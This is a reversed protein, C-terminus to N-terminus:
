PRVGSKRALALVSRRAYLRHEFDEYILKYEANLWDSFALERATNKLLILGPEAAKLEQVFRAGTLDGSWFRKLSIVGLQPPLPIGAHFSYIPEDTYLFETFPKLRQLEALALDSYLQPSQRMTKLELTVRAGMWVLTGLGIVALLVAWCRKGPGSFRQWLASIGVGACWGLPVANHVYYYSWWPKHTVFVALTLALWIVPVLLLPRCRAQRLLVFVGVLAPITTDWNNLLVSWQFSHEDPSGLEVVQGPVFHASWSQQFHKLYAGHDIFWDIAVFSVAFSVGFVLLSNRLGAPFLRGFPPVLRAASLDGSPRCRLWLILGAVPLYIIGILKMQLGVAFVVGAIAEALLWKRRKAVLLVCLAVVVPALSPIEQMVSGALIMFGPSAILWFAALAAVFLGHVRFSALFLGSVLVGAFAVTLLRPWLIEASVHKAIQVLLYTHVPPQDNWVQTYFDYGHLLLITKATEYDEDVGIRVATSLPALLELGVFGALLLILVIAAKFGCQRTPTCDTRNGQTPSGRRGAKSKENSAQVRWQQVRFM